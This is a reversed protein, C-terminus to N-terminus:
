NLVPCEKIREIRDFASMARFYMQKLHCGKKAVRLLQKMAREGRHVSNREVPRHWFRYDLIM